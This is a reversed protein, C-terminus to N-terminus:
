RGRRRKLADIGGVELSEMFSLTGLELERVERDRCQKNVLDQLQPTVQTASLGSSLELLTMKSLKVRGGRCWSRGM